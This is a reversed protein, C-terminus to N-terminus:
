KLMSATRAIKSSNDLTLYLKVRLDLKQPTKHELTAITNIYSFQMVFGVIVTEPMDGSSKTVDPLVHLRIVSKNSNRWVVVKPDDQFNQPVNLEDYEAAEDKPPLTFSSNPLLIEGNPVVIIPKVEEIVATQRIASPLLNPSDCGMQIREKNIEEVVGQVKTTTIVPTELSLFTIQMQHQTPNSLKLLLESSKGFQLPEYTVIRVEPLHYYAALQIKFKTSTSCYDPKSVNHECTRCRQSRKIIFQKKQPRLKDITDAQLEPHQLRQDITTTRTIDISKTFLDSLSEDVNEEAVSPTPTTVTQNQAQTLPPRGSRKRAMASTIGFKEFQLFSRKIHFKKREKQQKEFSALIKYYNILANVRNSYPNEQEKWSGTAVTQDPIGADRSSWRCLSCSLYYVKKTTPKSEEESKSQSSVSFSQGLRISLTQLCCPCDFCNSCKNKKLRVESTPLNELCNPCYYSDVEHCVCFGCRISLCHRCFYIKSISKLSGCSCSYQVYEPQRLYAM